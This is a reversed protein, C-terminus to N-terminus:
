FRSGGLISDVTCTETTDLKVDLRLQMETARALYDRLRWTGRKGDSCTYTGTATRLMGPTCNRALARTPARSTIFACRTM